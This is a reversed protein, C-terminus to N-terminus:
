DKEESNCSLATASRTERMKGARWRIALRARFPLPKLLEVAYLRAVKTFGRTYKAPKDPEESAIIVNNGDGSIVTRADVYGVHSVAYIM